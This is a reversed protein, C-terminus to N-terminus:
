CFLCFVGGCSQLVLVDSGAKGRQWTSCIGWLELCLSLTIKLGVKKTARSYQKSTEVEFAVGDLSTSWLAQRNPVYRFSYM